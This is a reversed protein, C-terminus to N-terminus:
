IRHTLTLSPGEDWPELNMLNGPGTSSVRRGWRGTAVLGFGSPGIGSGDDAGSTYEEDEEPNAIGGSEEKRPTDLKKLLEGPRGEDGPGDDPPATGSTGLGSEPGGRNESEPAATIDPVQSVAGQASKEAEEEKLLAATYGHVIDLLRNPRTVEEEIDQGAGSGGHM